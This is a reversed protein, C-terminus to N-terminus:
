VLLGTSEHLNSGNECSLVSVLSQVDFNGSILTQRIKKVQVFKRPEAWFVKERTCIKASKKSFGRFNIGILYLIGLFVLVLTPSVTIQLHIHEEIQYLYM